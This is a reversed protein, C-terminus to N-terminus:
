HGGWIPPSPAQLGGLLRAPRLPRRLTRSRKAPLSHSPSPPFQARARPWRPARLGTGTPGHPWAPAPGPETRPQQSMRCSLMGPFGSSRRAAESRAALAGQSGARAPVSSPVFGGLLPPPPSPFPSPWPTGARPTELAEGCGFVPSPEPPLPISLDSGDRLFSCSWKGGAKGRFQLAATRVRADRRRGRGGATVAPGPDQLTGPDGESGASGKPWWGRTSSGAKGRRVHPSFFKETQPLFFLSLNLGWVESPSAQSDGAM